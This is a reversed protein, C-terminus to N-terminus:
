CIFLGSNVDSLLWIRQPQYTVPNSTSHYSDPLFIWKGQGRDLEPHMLTGVSWDGVVAAAAGVGFWDSYTFM